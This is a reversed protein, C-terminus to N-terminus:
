DELLAPYTMLGIAFFIVDYVLMFQIWPVIEGPQLQHFLGSSAKVAALLLPLIVPFLLVSLLTDKMRSQMAMGALLSGTVAYGLTGLLVVLLFAPSLMISGFFM